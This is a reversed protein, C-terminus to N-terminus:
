LKDGVRILESLALAIHYFSSAPAAENIFGGDPQRRDRWLGRVPVDCYTMLMDYAQVCNHAASISRTNEFRVINAKIRETHPWLRSTPTRVGGEAWTEDAIVGTKPDVGYVEGHLYIRTASPSVRTESLRAYRELLWSWEFQHGPEAVRGEDGQRPTWDDDFFELLAGWRPSIWKTELLKILEGATKLLSTDGTAEFLQLLAEVMHMHPNQRRPPATVLDGELFGGAPHLWNTITWDVLQKAKAAFDPQQLAIAARALAFVVFATDYLDRSNDAIGEGSPTLAFRTGGDERIGKELLVKAGAEAATRWPGSWGLGGALSYVFTQRAQVRIRRPLLVPKGTLDIRENFTASASDFGTDWWLPLAYDFLWAKAKAAREALLSAASAIKTFSPLQSLASRTADILHGPAVKLGAIGIARGASLDADTDGLIASGSPEVDWELMARRLMGGNPKRDPRDAHVLGEVTGDPHFPYHYYGDIHAGSKSLETQLADHFRSLHDETYKGRAIGSQNTVVLALAGADNIARVAEIAGPLLKLDEVKYTYGADLNLTGDRDLFIARRRMADAIDRRGESLTEPLGIDLFYGEVPLGALRGESALHPFIDIEISCPNVKIRDLLSKRLAYVGGSILGPGVASVDKERFAVIRHGRLDVHAFRSVNDVLRLALAGDTGPKLEGALALYNMDLISDGNSMLFVDDLRDRAYILAGATGAPSPERIVHVTAGGFTAGQYTAEVIEGLHGALLLIENIGHRAINELLFDLFRKQGAIPLLPKPVNRAAEGLRTGRGGVLVVAQRM